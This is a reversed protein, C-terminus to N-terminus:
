EGKWSKDMLMAVFFLIFYFIFSIHRMGDKTKERRRESARGGFFGFFGFFWNKKLNGSLRFDHPGELKGGLLIDDWV